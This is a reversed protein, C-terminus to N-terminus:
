QRNVSLLEVEFILTSNPTILPGVKKDKYALQPPLFIKWKDGEQMMTLAQQWGSIVRRLPFKAPEQRQYSSDFVTGNLLMGKYHVTVTDDLGPSTGNGNELVKYQLGTPTVKVGTKNKNKQLFKQGHNQNQKAVKQAQKQKKQAIKEQFAIRVQQAEEKNLLLGKNELANKLGEAVLEPIIDLETLRLNEGIEMGISYSFREKETDLGLDANDTANPGSKETSQAWALSNLLFGAVLILMIKKM